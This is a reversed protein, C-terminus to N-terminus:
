PSMFGLQTFLLYLLLCVVTTGLTWKHDDIFFYIWKKPKSDFTLFRYNEYKIYSHLIDVILMVVYGSILLELLKTM